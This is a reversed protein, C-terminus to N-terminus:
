HEPTIGVTSLPLVITFITGGGPNDEFGISGDFRAKIFSNSIFLGLGNGMTGKSTIMQSFLCKKVDDPIGCGTDKVRIFFNEDDKDTEIEIVGGTEKMAYIANDVLNNLVQVLSNIDGRIRVAEAVLHTEKLTCSFSQLEHRLLLFVRKIVDDITFEDDDNANLNAAQGKVATIIDSMYTCAEQIRSTWQRMEAYIERYDGESVDPDGLSVLSEEVLKDIASISGSISMIPTKLNHSIGGLMQGLFALRENEMLRKQSNQLDRTNEKLKTIDKFFIVFGVDQDNVNLRTVDVMYFKTVVKGDENLTLSQEYSITTQLNQSNQISAVLTHMGVDDSFEDFAADFFNSNIALGYASGFSDAFARNLSVIIGDHSVVLFGDSVRNIVTEVAIPKIDLIHFKFIALGHMFVIGFIYFLPVSFINFDFLGMTTLMSGSIAIINGVGLMAGQRMYITRKSKLCFYVIVAISIMVCLYGYVGSVAVLPGFEIEQMNISFVKYHLHHWPNTWVMLFSFLPMIFLLYCWRPLKDRNTVFVLSVLLTLVPLFVALNTIADIIYEALHDDNFFLLAMLAMLWIVSIGSITFYLMRLLNLTGNRLMYFCFGLILLVIIGFFTFLGINM